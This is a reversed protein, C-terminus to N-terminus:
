KQKRPLQQLHHPYLETMIPSEQQPYAQDRLLAANGMTHEM